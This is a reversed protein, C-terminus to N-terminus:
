NDFKKWQCEDEFKSIKGLSLHNVTHKRKERFVFNFKLQDVIYGALKEIWFEYEFNWYLFNFWFCAFYEKRDRTLTM